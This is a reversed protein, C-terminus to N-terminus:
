TGYRIGEHPMVLLVPPISKPILYVLLTPHIGILFQSLHRFLELVMLALVTGYINIEYMGSGIVLGIAATVWMGAAHPFGKVM